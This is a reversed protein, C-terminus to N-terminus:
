GRRGVVRSFLSVTRGDHSSTRSPGRSSSPSVAAPPPAPLPALGRVSPSGAAPSRSSPSSLRHSGASGSGSPRRQGLPAQAGPLSATLSTIRQVRKEEKHLQRLVKQTTGLREQVPRPRRSGTSSACAGAQAHAATATPLPVM